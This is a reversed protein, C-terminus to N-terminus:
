PKLPEVVWGDQALLNLVGSKGSLHLAGFAVMVPGEVSAADIVPIWAKNRRTLLLDEMRAYEVDARAPDYGPMQQSQLRMFDWARRSDGAFYSDSLTVAYDAAQGEIQLASRIMELQEEPGLDAFLQLLTDYPELAQVPLGRLTAATILRHDLGNANAIEGVACPPVALLLSVYWPDFKAAIFPAIGRAQMAAALVQWEEPSFQELLSPGSTILMLDPNDTMATKLAAQEDPGAEVLLRTVKPLLPKLRAMAAKHRPDEMHYTGVIYLQAAGKQAHWFNGKAFPHTAVAADLAAMADPSLKKLLNKGDCQAQAFATLGLWILVISLMRLWLGRLPHFM